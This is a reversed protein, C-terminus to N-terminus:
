IKFPNSFRPDILLEEDTLTHLFAEIADVELSNLNLTMPNGGDILKDDLNQHPQINSNYHNIVEKLTEFRGDHMYPATVGINRLSPIKFQGQGQGNDAYIIDLGINATGRTQQYEGGGGDSAAFNAGSHCSGCQARDSFFLAMGLKEMETFNGFDNAVERDFTTETTTISSIFESVAESIREPNIEDDGYADAFLEPYYSVEQLKTSLVDMNEMGMEIHNSIPEEVLNMISRQRSDWFFNNNTATNCFGMSNRTTTKGAFGISLAAKDAFGNEQHHCSACATLNNKSLKGDYFLVRGLTALENNTVPHNVIVGGNGVEPFGFEFGPFFSQVIAFDPLALSNLEDTNTTYDFSEAPLIPIASNPNTNPENTCAFILTCSLISLVVLHQFNNM